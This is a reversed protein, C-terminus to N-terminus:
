DIWPPGKVLAQLNSLGITGCVIPGVGRKVVLNGDWWHTPCVARAIFDRQNFVPIAVTCSAM